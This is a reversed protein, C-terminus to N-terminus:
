LEEYRLVTTGIRIEDGDALLHDTIATGNVFTGNTSGLDVLRFGEAVARIEAHHRSSQPDSIQIPCDSLRGIRTVDRTIPHRQGDPLVVAAQEGGPEFAADVEITGARTEDHQRLTISLPGLIRYGENHCHERVSETIESLLEDAYPAFREFDTGAVTVAYRNAVVPGRPTIQRSRELERLIRRAIELPQAGSRFARGFTGEVLRELRRELAQLVVIPLTGLDHRTWHPV